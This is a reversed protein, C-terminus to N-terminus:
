INFTPQLINAGPCAIERHNPDLVSRAIRIHWHDKPILLENFLLQGYEFASSENPRNDPNILDRGGYYVEFITLQLEDSGSRTRLPPLQTSLPNNYSVDRM